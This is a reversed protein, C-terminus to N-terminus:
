ALGLKPSMTCKVGPCPFDRRVGPASLALVYLLPDIRKLSQVRDSESSHGHEDVGARHHARARLDGLLGTTM